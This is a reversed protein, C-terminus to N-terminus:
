MEFDEISRPALKFGYFFTLVGTVSKFITGDAIEPGDNGLDFLENSIKISDEAGIGGGMDILVTLRGKGDDDPEGAAIVGEIRVLMGLYQRAKPYGVVGEWRASGGNEKVITLPEVPGHDFRFSMTGGIEPLTKCDGFPSTPGLFEQLNGFTDVVDGEFLRLDPPTFAPAFVTVGSFPQPEDDGEYLDEIYINGLAGDGTEDYRDIAVIVQGTANVAHDGPQKCGQSEMNGPEYWEAAPIVDRLRVGNGLESAIPESRPDGTSGDSTIDCGLLTVFVIFPLAHRRSSM